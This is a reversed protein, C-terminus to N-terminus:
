AAKTLNQLYDIADQVTLFKEAVEDTIECKFEDELAMVLEAKKLSDIGFDEFSSEPIVKTEEVSLSEAIVKQLKKITDQSM